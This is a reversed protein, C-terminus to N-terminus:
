KDERERAEIALRMAEARGCRHRTMYYEILGEGRDAATSFMNRFTRETAPSDIAEDAKLLKKVFKQSEAAKGRRSPGEATKLIRSVPNARQKTALRLRQFLFYIGLLLVLAGVAVLVVQDVM